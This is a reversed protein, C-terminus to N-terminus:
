DLEIVGCAIRGGADGAAITAANPGGTPPGDAAVYWTPINAFNDPGAHLIVARGEIDAPDFRGTVSRAKGSGNTLVLVSPLDGAHSGHAKDTPNWHGGVNTFPGKAATPDCPGVPDNAHLHLGHYADRGVDVGRLSVKVVTGHRDGEFKIKGVKAGNADRLVAVADWGHGSASGSTVALSTAGVILTTAFATVAFKKSRTTRTPTSASSMLNELEHHPAFHMGFLCVITRPSRTVDIPVQRAGDVVSGAGDHSRGQSRVPSEGM